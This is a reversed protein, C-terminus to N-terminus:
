SPDVSTPVPGEVSESSVPGEVSTPVPGEVSKSALGEAGGFFGLIRPSDWTGSSSLSGAVSSSFIRMVGLPLSYTVIYVLKSCPLKM